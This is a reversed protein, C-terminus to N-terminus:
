SCSRKQSHPTAKHQALFRSLGETALVTSTLVKSTLDQAFRRKAGMIFAGMHESSLFM